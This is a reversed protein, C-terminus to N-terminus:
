LPPPPPAGKIGVRGGMGSGRRPRDLTEPLTVGLKRGRGRRWAGARLSGAEEAGPQEPQPFSAPRPRGPGRRGAHEVPRQPDPLFHARHPARGPGPAAMRHPLHPRLGPLSPPCAPGNSIPPPHPACQPSDRRWPEPHPHPQSPPGARRAGPLGLSLLAPVHGRLRRGSVLSLHQSAGLTYSLRQASRARSGHKRPKPKQLRYFIVRTVAVMKESGRALCLTLRKVYKTQRLGRSLEM